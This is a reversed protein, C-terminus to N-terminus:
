NFEELKGLSSKLHMKSIHYDDPVSVDNCQSMLIADSNKKKLRLMHKLM